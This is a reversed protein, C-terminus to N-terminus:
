FLIAIHGVGTSPNINHSMYSKYRCMFVGCFNVREELALESHLSRCALAPRFGHQVYVALSPRSGPKLCCLAGRLCVLRLANLLPAIADLVAPLTGAELIGLHRELTALFKLNDRAETTLQGVPSINGPM